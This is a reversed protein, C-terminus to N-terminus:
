IISFCREFYLKDILIQNLNILKFNELKNRSRTTCIKISFILFCIIERLAGPYIIKKGSPLDKLCYWIKERLIRPPINCLIISKVILQNQKFVSIHEIKM